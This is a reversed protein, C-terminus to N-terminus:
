VALEVMRERVQELWRSIYSYERYIEELRTLPLSGTRDAQVEGLAEWTTNMLELERELEERKRNLTTQVTQLQGRWRMAAEFHRVRLLPSTANSRNKALFQDVQRCLGGVQFFFDTAAGPLRELQALPHGRELELLHRIRQKTDRLVQYATNAATFAQNAHERQEAPASHFRDPHVEASRALFRNQLDQSELWPRRPLDLVVFYDTVRAM